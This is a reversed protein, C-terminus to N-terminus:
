FRVPASVGLQLNPSDATLGMAVTFNLLVRRSVVMGVGLQLVAFTEDSGLLPKGDLTDEPKYHYDLLFSMSAEPSVALIAGGGLGWSDGPKRRGDKTTVELNTTHTASAIFVLPDATKVATLTGGIAPYGTGLGFAGASADFPSSGIKPKWTGTLLFDPWSSGGHIPQWTLSFRPDGLGFGFADNRAAGAVAVDSWVRSAPVSAELQFDSPLGLRSTLSAT